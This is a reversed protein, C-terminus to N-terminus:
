TSQTEIEGEDDNAAVEKMENRILTEQVLGEATQRSSGTAATIPNRTM